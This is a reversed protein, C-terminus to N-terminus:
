HINRHTIVCGVVLTSDIDVLGGHRAVVDNGDVVVVVVDAPFVGVSQVAAGTAHHVEVHEKHIVTLHQM